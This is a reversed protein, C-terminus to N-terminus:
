ASWIDQIVTPVIFDNRSLRLFQNLPFTTALLYFVFLLFALVVTWLSPFQIILHTHYFCCFCFFFAFNATKEKKKKYTSILIEKEAADGFRIISFKFWNRKRKEEVFLASQM